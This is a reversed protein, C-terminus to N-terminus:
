CHVEWNCIRHILMEYIISVPIGIYNDSDSNLGTNGGEKQIEIIKKVM